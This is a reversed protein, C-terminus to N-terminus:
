WRQYLVVVAEPCLFGERLLTRQKVLVKQKEKVKRLYKVSPPTEFQGQILYLKPLLEVKQKPLFCITEVNCFMLTVLFKLFRSFAHM